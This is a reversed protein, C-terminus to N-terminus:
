TVPSGRRREDSITETKFTGLRDQRINVFVNTEGWVFHLKM